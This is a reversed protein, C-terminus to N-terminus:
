NLTLGDQTSANGTKDVIQMCQRVEKLYNCFWAARQVPCPEALVTYRDDVNQCIVSAALDVLVSTALEQNLLNQVRAMNFLSQMAPDSLLQEIPSRYTELDIETADNQEIPELYATRYGEDNVNLEEVVRARDAGNLLLNYRGDELLNYRLISGVCVVPRISPQGEYEGRWSKGEFTAMAILGSSDIVDRTMARYRDEFIHLPIGSHPLLVCNALPFLAIVRSYDINEGLLM